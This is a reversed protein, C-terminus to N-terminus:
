IYTSIKGDKKYVHQRKFRVGRGTFINIPRFSILGHGATRLDNFNSSSFLFKTKRLFKIRTFYSYYFMRHAYGFQPTLTNRKNRYLYYGKGKFIIRLAYKHTTTYLVKKIWKWYLHFWPNVFFSYFMVISSSPNIKVSTKLGVPLGFTIYYNKSYYYFKYYSTSRNKFAIYNWGLPISIGSSWPSSYTKILNYKVKTYFSKKNQRKRINRILKLYQFANTTNLWFLHPIILATPNSGM